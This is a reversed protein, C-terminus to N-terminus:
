HSARWINKALAELPAGDMIRQAKKLCKESRFFNWIWAFTAFKIASKIAEWQSVELTSHYVFGAQRYTTFPEKLFKLRWRLKQRWSWHKLM